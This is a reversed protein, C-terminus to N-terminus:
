SARRRWPAALGRKVRRAGRLMGKLVAALRPHRLSTNRLLHSLRIAIPGMDRFPDMLAREVSLARRTQHLEAELHAIYARAEALHAQEAGLAARTAQLEAEKANLRSQTARVSDETGELRARVEVLNAEAICLRARTADLDAETECLRVQTANLSGESARLRDETLLVHAEKEQLVAGAQKWQIHAHVLDAAAKELQASLDAVIQEQKLMQAQQLQYGHLVHEDCVNVPVRFCELLHRDEERVYFRNLGDFYAFLYGANLILHEWDAHNPVATNPLTAEILVVRPRWRTWDAGELVPREFDEVDINLFDITRRVHEACVQALSRVPVPREVVQRGRERYREAQAPSFTSLVNQGPLEYLTLNSAADAIGLNLNVDRPREQCLREYASPLPEINIGSWGQDYFHKTVSLDVPDNAGVDIYFGDRVGAFCRQLLVDEGNQAYSIMKM